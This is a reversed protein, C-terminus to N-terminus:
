CEIRRNWADVAREDFDHGAYRELYSKGMANCKICTVHASYAVPVSFGDPKVKLIAESGCFPCPKIHRDTPKIIQKELADIAMQFAEICEDNLKCYDDLSQELKKLITAAAQNTM